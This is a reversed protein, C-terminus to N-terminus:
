LTRSSPMFPFSWARMRVKFDSIMSTVARQALHSLLMVTEGRSQGHSAFPSNVDMGQASMALNTHNGMDELTPSRMGRHQDYIIMPVPELVMPVGDPRLLRALSGLLEPYNRIQLLIDVDAGPGLM